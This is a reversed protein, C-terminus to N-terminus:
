ARRRRLALGAVGLLLLLGSTPEPVATTYWGSSTYGDKAAGVVAKSASQPNFSINSGAEVEVVTQDNLKNGEWIFVKDAVQVAFLMSQTKGSATTTFKDAILGSSVTVESGGLKSIDADDKALAALLTAATYSDKTFFYASGSYIDSDNGQYMAKSTSVNWYATSGYSMVAACVIAAAIMLKKM